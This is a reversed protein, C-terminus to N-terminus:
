CIIRVNNDKLLFFTTKTRQSLMPFDQPGPVIYADLHIDHILGCKANVSKSFLDFLFTRGRVETRYQKYTSAVLFFRFIASRGANVSRELVLVNTRYESYFQHQLVPIM